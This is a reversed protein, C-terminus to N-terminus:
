EATREHHWDSADVDFLSAPLTPDAFIALQDPGTEVVPRALIELAEDWLALTRDASV